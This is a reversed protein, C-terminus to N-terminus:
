YYWCQLRDCQLQVIRSIVQIRSGIKMFSPLLMMGAPVREVDCKLLVLM